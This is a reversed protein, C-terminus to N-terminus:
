PRVEGAWFAALLDGHEEMLELYARGQETLVVFYGDLPERAPKMQRGTSFERMWEPIPRLTPGLRTLSADTADRVGRLALLLRHNM